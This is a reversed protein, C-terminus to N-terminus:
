TGSTQGPALMAPPPYNFRFPIVVFCAAPRGGAMAPRFLWQLVAAVACPNYRADNSSVVRAAEVSGGEGVVFSVLVEVRPEPFAPPIGPTQPPVSAVLKPLSDYKPTHALLASYGPIDSWLRAVAGEVGPAGAEQRPDANMRQYALNSQAAGQDEGLVATLTGVFGPSTAAAPLPISAIHLPITVLSSDTIVHCVLRAGPPLGPDLRYIDFRYEPHGEPGTSHYWGAHDYRLPFGEKTQFEASILRSDPDTIAVALDHAGMGAPGARAISWSPLGLPPPGFANGGDFGQPGGPANRKAMGEATAKDYVVIGVRARALDASALPSGLNSAIEDVTVVSHPDLYPVVLEVKGEIGRISTANASVGWLTFSTAERSTFDKSDDIRGVSISYFRNTDQQNLVGGTDDSSSRITVRGAEVTSSNPGVPTLSVIVGRIGTRMNMTRSVSIGFPVEVAMLPGAAALTLLLAPAIRRLKM